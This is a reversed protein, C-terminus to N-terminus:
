KSMAEDLAEKLDCTITVIPKAPTAKEQDAM